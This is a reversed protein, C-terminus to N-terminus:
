KIQQEGKAKLVKNLIELDFLKATDPKEKIFGANISLTIMDKIADKEPNNTITLRQFSSDLIDDTLTKKTLEGIQKNVLKKGDANNKNIYDTLEVHAKLFSEVADPHAKLFDKRAVIVTTPYNGDRWIKDFDLVVKAGSQKVLRSGWPEPVLAADASAKDFLTQIDPNDAQIIEVTGGKTKDKLGNESLLNRLTLDQTAGFQPVVVKKGDLDKASKIDVGKRAVLIAGADSAGGIIVVDGKSKTYANIAPGPGIYGIDVAGALLAEVESSGANFQKWEINWKDGLDKKFTGNEKGALGQSHTINPFYAIRIASPKSSSSDSAKTGTSCGVFASGLAVTLLISLTKRLKM